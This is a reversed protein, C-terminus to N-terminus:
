GHTWRRLVEELSAERTAAARAPTDEMRPAPGVVIRGDHVRLAGRAALQPERAAETFDLVPTVCADLGEFRAVWDDRTRARFAASLAEQLRPWSERDYQRDVTDAPLGLGECLAAFFKPELAGVAMWKADATEYARYFPAGGDLLNSERRPNWAGANFMSLTMTNLLVAGDLMAADIVQGRGSSGRAYLAALLGFALLMGGGGFDGVLNLPPVPRQAEGISAMVGSLAIYNIDHGVRSALPGTQGWGTMRGYVLRPNRSQCDAPGFGLREMVGPRYGEILVDARDVLQAVGARAQPDKLDAVVRLRGRRLQEHGGAPVGEAEGGPREISVVDAGHDALMMACFPGPGISAFEVVRLGKLASM